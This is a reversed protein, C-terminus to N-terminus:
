IQVDIREDTVYICLPKRGAQKHVLRCRLLVSQDPIDEFIIVDSGAVDDELTKGYDFTNTIRMPKEKTAQLLLVYETAIRQALITKGAGQAATVFIEM